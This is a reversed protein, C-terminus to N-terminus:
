CETEPGPGFRENNTVSDSDYISVTVVKPRLHTNRPATSFFSSIFYLVGLKLM